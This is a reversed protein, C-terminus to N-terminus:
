GFFRKLLQIILNDSGPVPTKLSVVGYPIITEGQTVVKEGKIIEVTLSGAPATKRFLCLAMLGKGKYQAPVKGEVNQLNPNTPTETIAFHGKFKLGETGGVKITFDSNLGKLGDSCGTLLLAALLFSRLIPLQKKMIKMNILRNGNQTKGPRRRSRLRSSVPSSRVGAFNIFIASYLTPM